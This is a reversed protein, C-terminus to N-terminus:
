SCLPLYSGGKAELLPRSQASSCRWEGTNDSSLRHTPSPQRDRIAKEREFGNCNCSGRQWQCALNNTQFEYPMNFMFYPAMFTLKIMRYASAADVRHQM